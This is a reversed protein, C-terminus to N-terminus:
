THESLCDHMHEYDSDTILERYDTGVIASCHEITSIRSYGLEELGPVLIMQEQANIIVREPSANEPLMYITAAALAILLKM